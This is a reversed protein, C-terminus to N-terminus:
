NLLGMAYKWAKFKYRKILADSSDKLPLTSFLKDVEDAVEYLAVLRLGAIVEKAGLRKKKDISLIRRVLKLLL